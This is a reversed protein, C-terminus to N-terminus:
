VHAFCHDALFQFLSRRGVEKTCVDCVPQAFFFDTGIYTHNAAKGLPFEDNSLSM